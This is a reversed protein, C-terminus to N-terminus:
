KGGKTKKAPKPEAEVREVAGCEILWAEAGPPLQALVAGPAFYEGGITVGRHVVFAM